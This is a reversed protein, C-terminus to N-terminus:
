IRNSHRTENEGNGHGRTSSLVGSRTGCKIHGYRITSKKNQSLLLFNKVHIAPLIFDLICLHITTGCQTIKGAMQRTVGLSQDSNHHWM